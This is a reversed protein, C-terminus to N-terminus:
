YFSGFYYIGVIPVQTSNCIMKRIPYREEGDKTYRARYFGRMKDNHTGTFKYKVVVTSGVGLAKDADFYNLYTCHVYINSDILKDYFHLRVHIFFLLKSFSIADFHHRAQSGVVDVIYSWYRLLFNGIKM